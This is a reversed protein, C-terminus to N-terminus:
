QGLLNIPVKLYSTGNDEPEPFRGADINIQVSPIILRPMDLTADRRERMQVFEAENIGDKVHINGQKQASVTTTPCHKRGESPYDHCLYMVTDEPLALLKQISQYLMKADGGPFDCRATGVDPAFLTDGVFVVTKEDDAAVYAMDARTHGPVYMATITISGLALTDGEDTLIDFQSADTRFSTDFNFIQKFIKQVETIHQGMVLQGGLTSKTHIAASLHDAHAHTEIIYVLQWGQERIFAIVKDVSDTTARGSKSDFDLVPDIMACLKKQADALVHTYTETDSHLFSHVQM